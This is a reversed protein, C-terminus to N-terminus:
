MSTHPSSNDSEEDATTDNGAVHLVFELAEKVVTMSSRHRLCVERHLSLLRSDSGAPTRAHDKVECKTGVPGTAEISEGRRRRAPVLPVEHAETAELFCESPRAEYSTRRSAALMRERNSM